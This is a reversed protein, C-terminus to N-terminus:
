KKVDKEAQKIIREKEEPPTEDWIKKFLKGRERRWKGVNRPM